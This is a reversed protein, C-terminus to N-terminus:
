CPAAWNTRSKAWPQAAKSPFIPSRVHFPINKKNFFSLLFYFYRYNWCRRHRPRFHRYVSRPLFFILQPFLFMSNKLFFVFCFRLRVRANFASPMSPGPNLKGGVMTQYKSSWMSQELGQSFASFFLPNCHSYLLFLLPLFSGTYFIVFGLQLMQPTRLLSFTSETHTHTYIHTHTHTHTHPFPPFFPDTLSFSYVLFFFFFSSVSWTSPPSSPSRTAESYIFLYFNSTSLPPPLLPPFFYLRMSNSLPSM